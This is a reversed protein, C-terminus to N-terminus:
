QIWIDGDSPSAPETTRIKSMSYLYWAGSYSAVYFGSTLLNYNSKDVKTGDVYFTSAGTNNVNLTPNTSSNTNSNKVYLLFNSRIVRQYSTLTVIKEAVNAATDCIGVTHSACEAITASAVSQSGINGSDINTLWPQWTGNNKGRFFLRGNRYDQAIQAVWSDSYRQVFLAGDSASAGQATTPGNSTYYTIANTLVDNANRGKDNNNELGGSFILPKSLHSSCIIISGTPLVPYNSDTVGTQDGLQIIAYYKIASYFYGSVDVIAYDVKAVYGNVLLKKEIPSSLMVSTSFLSNTFKNEISSVIDGISLYNATTTPKIHFSYTNLCEAENASGATIQNPAIARLEYGNWAALWSPNGTLGAKSYAFTTENGNGSDRVSSASGTLTAYLTGFRAQSIGNPTFQITVNSNNGGYLATGVTFVENGNSFNATRLTPTRNSYFRYKMGGRVWVCNMGGQNGTGICGITIENADFVAYHLINIRKPIDSWGQAILQFHIYNQNYSASGGLNPSHIECDLELDTSPFTVPYFNSTSLSSANIEYYRKLQYGNASITDANLSGKIATTSNAPTTDNPTIVLIETKNTDKATVKFVGRIISAVSTVIFNSIKMVLKYTNSDKWFHLFEHADTSESASSKAVNGIYFEESNTKSNIYVKSNDPDPVGTNTIASSISGAAVDGLNATIAALNETKIDEAIITGRHTVSTVLPAILYGASITGSGSALGCRISAKNYNSNASGSAEAVTFCRYANISVTSDSVSPSPLDDVKIDCGCIYTSFSVRKKGISTFYCNGARSWPSWKGTTPNYTSEMYTSNTAGSISGYNSPYLGIYLRWSNNANNDLTASLKLIEDPKVEFYDTRNGDINAALMKLCKVNTVSDNAIAWNDNANPITWGQVTKNKLSGVVTDSGTFSNIKNVAVANLKEATITNAQIKDAIVAGDEIKATTVSNSQLKASSIANNVLDYVETPRAVTLISSCWNSNNTKVTGNTNHTLTVARMRYYYNTAVSGTSASQGSLPLQQNFERGFVDTDAGETGKWLSEDTKPNGSGTYTAFWTENDMSIQIEFRDWGWYSDDRKVNVSITRGSSESSLVPVAPLWTLYKSTDITSPSVSVNYNAENIPKITFEWSSSNLDSIEPYEGVARNFYYVYNCDYVTAIVTNDKSIEYRVNGYVSSSDFEWSLSISDKECVEKVNTPEPPIWTKYNAYTITQRSSETTSTGSVNTVKITATYKSLQRTGTVATKEPYGDTNRNFNYVVSNGTLNSYTAQLTGDYYVKVQYTNTGYLQKSNQGVANNWEFVIGGEEAEKRTFSNIAPTWTGYHSTTIEAVKWNESFDGYVNEARVRFRWNALTNAEPYGDTSRNFNYSYSSEFTGIVETWTSGSDKSMEVHYQKIVNNLGNDAVPTWVLDIRNEGAVASLTLVDDPIGVDATGDIVTEVIGAAQDTAETISQVIDDIKATNSVAFSDEGSRDSQTMNNQFSPLARGYNYLDEQYKALTFDFTRNNNGKIKIVRYTATINGVIGFSVLNEVQPQYYYFNGGQASQTKTIPVDFVVVNTNGKKVTYTVGEVTVSTNKKALRLTIVKYEKYQSPQMVMCGQKCKTVGGITETEGTYKYTNNILFGYIKEDDELLKSIRAGTDTGILMTDDSVLVLNGLGISAGEIGLQKSVVERNLIRNALLYTGLSNQQYNNTVYDFHCQEIAGHPNDADEGDRMCYFNNQQYGDAEDPFVIQLGSPLEDFSISYTSKLTNQQNILAVPYKEPKDMVVTIRGKNNRTYVARGAVAIKALINELMEPQYVYANATFYMKVEDGAHHAVRNGNLDYHYGDSPYYSGDKLEKLEENWKALAVTDFDGFDSKLEHTTSDYFNQEYGLADVGLQPGIGALLFMSSVINKCYLLTGDCDTKYQGNEKDDNPIYYRGLPDVHSLTRIVGNVIQPVFNNGASSQTSKIGNQRDQYFQQETIEQGPEYTFPPVVAADGRNGNADVKVPPRFYKNQKTVSEPVWKKTVNDYYPSFSQAVCSLKKITNSLQDVNDTKAKLSLVCLKRMREDTLPRKQSVVNNKLLEDGDLIESSLTTWTFIDNFKFASHEKTSTTEDIYCPSIRVVRVEISKTSNSSDYFYAKMKKALITEADPLTREDETLLNERAWAVFDVSTVCRIENIGEEDENTGGLSELNFIQSNLWGDNIDASYIESPININRSGSSSASMNFESSTWNKYKIRCTNTSYRGYGSRSVSSGDKPLELLTIWTNGTYIQLSVVANEVPNCSLSLNGIEWPEKYPQPDRESDWRVTVTHTSEGGIRRENKLSNGTHAAIDDYRAEETYKSTSITNGNIKEFTNWGRYAGSRGKYSVPLYRENEWDWVPLPIDDGAISGDTKPNEDSYVRWQIAVWMPIKYYKVESKSDNTESRSKYLGSGFDLEVTASKPYQETFRIVNNRLGNKLGLGKYSISNGSDIEELSGDAIYLVNAKIDEQIRAYPYVNGYDVAEGNQGQQLIELTIDNNAWTNVIDGNQGYFTAQSTHLGLAYANSEEVSNAGEFTNLLINVSPTQGALLQEAYGELQSPTLVTGNSLIPTVLVTKTENANSYGTSLVTSISGDEVDWGAARMQAATKQPRNRLDITTNSQYYDMGKDNNGEDIGTLAGHFINRMDQNDSWRQNHALFMDGLKIDTIRLPAYGVAYLVHIYNEQGRDGSIENWPSGIIFPTVLHKGIVFPYTQDLLPQNTAGRVDPLKQSDIGSKGSMNDNNNGAIVSAITSGLTYGLSAGSLVGLFIASGAGGMWATAVGVVIAGVVAGFIGWGVSSDGGAPTIVIAVIDNEDVKYDLTADKGNVQVIANVSTSDNEIPAFYTKGTELDYCEVLTGDYVNGDTHERIISEITTGKEVSFTDVTEELINKQIRVTAM